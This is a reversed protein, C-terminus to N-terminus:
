QKEEAFVFPTSFIFAVAEQVRLNAGLRVEPDSSNLPLENMGIEDLLDHIYPTNQVQNASHGQTLINSEHESYPLSCFNIWANPSVLDELSNLNIGNSIRDDRICLLHALDFHRDYAAYEGFAHDTTNLAGLIPILHSRELATYNDLNGVIHVWLWEAVDDVVYRGNNSTPIKAAWDKVWPDGFDCDTCSAGRTFDVLHQTAANYNRQFVKASDAAELSTQGGFVNHTPFFVEVDEGVFVSTLDMGINDGQLLAETNSLTIKNQQYIAREFSTFYKRQDASHFLTSTAYARIFALFDKEQGMSAWAARLQESKVENLNDDALGSIIEIPLTELSEPHQISIEFLNDIKESATTGNISEGLIRLPAGHHFLTSFTVEDSLGGTPSTVSMGTLMKATNRITENEHVDPNDVGFIGFYLQHIERAFDDNCFCQFTDSESDYRWQNTNHGYQLAVAATKAAAAMVQQYSVGSEHADMVVDYFKTIQAYEVATALNVALHYNTEWLAIRHRFPNLGRTTAMRTFVGQHDGGLSGNFRGRSFDGLPIPLNSSSQSLYEHAFEQFTGYLTAPETYKEGAVLPSLKSNHKSFNLMEAIAVSPRSDAWIQIQEDTAHGGFAFVKLVKRVAENNWNERSVTPLGLANQIAGEVGINTIGWRNGPANHVIEISNLGAVQVNSSILFCNEGNVLEGIVNGNLVVSLEGQQIYVADFCLNLDTFQGEYQLTIGNEHVGSGYQYGYQANLNEGLSLFVPEDPDIDSDLLLLSVIAAVASMTKQDDSQASAQNWSLFLIMIVM